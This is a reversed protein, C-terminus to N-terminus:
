SIAIGSNANESVEIQCIDSTAEGGETMSPYSVDIYWIETNPSIGEDALKKDVYKKFDNWSMQKM